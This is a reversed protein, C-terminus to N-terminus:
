RANTDIHKIIIRPRHANRREQGNKDVYTWLGLSFGGTYRDRAAGYDHAIRSLDFPHNFAVFLGRAKYIRPYLEKLFDRLTLLRLQQVGDSVTDPKHARVYRKLTRLEKATLGEAHFLGEEVCRGRILARYSGFTLSQTADIRTETDFVVMLEPLRWWKRSREQAETGEPLPTSASQLRCCIRHIPCSM